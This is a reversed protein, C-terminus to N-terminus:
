LGLSRQPNNSSSTDVIDHVAVNGRRYLTWHILIVQNAKYPHENIALRRSELLRATPEFGAVGAMFKYM